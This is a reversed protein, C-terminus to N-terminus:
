SKRKKSKSKTKRSKKIMGRRTMMGPFAGGFVNRGDGTALTDGSTPTATNVVAPGFASEAGGSVNNEQLLKEVMRVFQM